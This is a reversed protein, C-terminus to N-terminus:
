SAVRADNLQQKRVICVTFQAILGSLSGGLDRQGAPVCRHNCHEAAPCPCRRSSLLVTVGVTETEADGSDFARAPLRAISERNLQWHRSPITQAQSGILRREM